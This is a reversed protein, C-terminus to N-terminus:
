GEGPEGPDGVCTGCLEGDRRCIDVDSWCDGDMGCHQADVCETLDPNGCTCCGTPCPLDMLMYNDQSQSEPLITFASAFLFFAFSFIMLLNATTPKKKM